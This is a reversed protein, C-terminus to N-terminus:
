IVIQANELENTERLDAGSTGYRQVNRAHIRKDQRNKNGNNLGCLYPIYPSEVYALYSMSKVTLTVDILM